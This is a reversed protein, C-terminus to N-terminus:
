LEYLTLASYWDKRLMEDNTRIQQVDVDNCTIDEKQVPINLTKEDQEVTLSAPNWQLESCPTLDRLSVIDSTPM